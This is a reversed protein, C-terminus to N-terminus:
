VGKEVKGGCDSRDPSPFLGGEERRVGKQRGSEQGEEEAAFRWRRRGQQGACRQHGTDRLRLLLRKGDALNNLWVTGNLRPPSGRGQRRRGKGRRCPAWPRCVEGPGAGANDESSPGNEKDAEGDEDEEDALVVGRGRGGAPPGGNGQAAGGRENGEEEEDDDMCVRRQRCACRCPPDAAALHSSSTTGVM